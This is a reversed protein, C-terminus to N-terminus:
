GAPRAREDAPVDSAAVAGSWRLEQRILGLTRDLAGPNCAILERAATGAVARLDPHGLYFLVAEALSRADQVQRGAGGDLALAGIEEFHFMHPGFLVPCGVACAELVNHGGVRALSGGVFAIDAASYLRQLEGMTDGILIDVGPDLRGRERSRRVVRYGSNRCLRTVAGFREPHRPAIVLLLSPCSPRVLALAELLKREEGKHTSGAILVPRQEGWDRRLQRGDELVSDPVPTDFKLNGTVHISGDDVGLTELRRKDSRTQACILSANALMARATRPVWLYGRLSAQSMRVNVLLLPIGRRRCAAFLNPWFETEAIVAFEPKARLMFRRVCGPFDYPVYAHSVAGGFLEEVQESGTPTMTTVLIRHEPYIENLRSILAAASRVEGVSVAHVWIVRHGTMPKLYGFREHWRRWYAPYRIGRWLLHGIFCPMLLYMLLSWATM